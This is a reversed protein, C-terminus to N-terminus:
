TVEKRQLKRIISVCERVYQRANPTKAKRWFCLATKTSHMLTALEMVTFPPVHYTPEPQNM